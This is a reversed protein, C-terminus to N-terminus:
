ASVAAQLLTATLVSSPKVRFESANLTFRIASVMVPVRSIFATSKLQAASLATTTPMRLDARSRIITSILLPVNPKVRPVGMAEFELYAMTGTADQTLTQDIKIGIEQGKVYEGDVLHAKLIKETLTLGM